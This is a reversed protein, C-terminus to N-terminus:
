FGGADAALTHGDHSCVGVADGPYIEDRIQDWSWDTFEDTLGDGGTTVLPPLPKLRPVRAVLDDSVELPTEMIHCGM